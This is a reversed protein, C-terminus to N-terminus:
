GPRKAHQPRNLAWKSVCMDLVNVSNISATVVVIIIALRSIATTNAVQHQSLPVRFQQIYVFTNHKWRSPICTEVDRYAMNTTHNRYFTFQLLNTVWDLTFSSKSDPYRTSMTLITFTCKNIGKISPKGRLSNIFALYWNQSSIRPYVSEKLGDREAATFMTLDLRSFLYIPDYVPALSNTGGVSEM